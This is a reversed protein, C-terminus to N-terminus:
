SEQNPIPRHLVAELHPTLQPVATTQMQMQYTLTDPTVTFLRATAMMRQDNTQSKSEFRAQLPATNTVRGILVESRGSSQSNILQLKGSELIQIYGSEWHSTVYIESHEPRQETRQDFFLTQADRQTFILTERYFFPSITPFYGKGTGVWRGLLHSFLTDNPTTQDTM